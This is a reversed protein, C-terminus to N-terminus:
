HLIRASRRERENAAKRAAEEDRVQRVIREAAHDYAQREGETLESWGRGDISGYIQQHLQAGTM